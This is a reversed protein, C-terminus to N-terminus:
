SVACVVCRVSRACRHVPALHHLVGCVCRPVVLLSVVSCGVVLVFVAWAARCSLVVMDTLVLRARCALWVLLLWSLPYSRLPPLASLAPHCLPVAPSRSPLCPPPLVSAVALCWCLEACLRVPGDSFSHPGAGTGSCALALLACGFYALCAMCAAGPCSLVVDYVRARRCALRLWVAGWDGCRLRWGGSPGTLVRFLVWWWRVVVWFGDAATRISM